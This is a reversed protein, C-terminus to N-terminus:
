ELVRFETRRNLQDCIAREEESALSLIFAETLSTGESLFPYKAAVGRTVVFPLRKGWGRSQLREAAIGHDTLYRVVSAARRESLHQNYTEAGQRDAHALLELRVTPNDQLLGLLKKLEPESEPLLDAQDFAYYVERLQETNVRSALYFTVSYVEDGESPDTALRVYQNLYDPSAALMVYDESPSAELSARGLTDTTVAQEGAKTKGVLRVLARPIPFGERDLVEVEIRTEQEPRLVQYLQPHGLASERASALLGAELLPKEAPWAAAKPSPYYGYDDAPSNIPAPLLEAPHEQGGLEVRYIDLGGFGGKRSSVFYLLSDSVAYPFFEDAPSNVGKGLPLPTGFSNGELRVSFLDKGGEGGPADSVFFLTKGSPSLSPHACTITSDPFLRLQEGATWKGDTGLTARFLQALEGTGPVSMIGTYYLTRGDPSLSPTGVEKLEGQLGPLSDPLASWTGDARQGLRYIKGPPEGTVPSTGAKGRGSSRHSTFFLERGDARFTVGYASRGSRLPAFPQLIYRSGLLSDTLGRRDGSSSLEGLLQRTLSDTPLLREASRLLQEASALRRGRWAALGAQQAYRAREARKARPTTRYLQRYRQEAEYYAGRALAQEARRPASVACGALATLALLSLLITRMTLSGFTM